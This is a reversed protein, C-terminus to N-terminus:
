EETQTFHITAGRSLYITSANWTNSLGEIAVPPDFDISRILKEHFGREFLKEYGAQEHLGFGDAWTKAARRFDHANVQDRYTGGDYEFFFTFLAM